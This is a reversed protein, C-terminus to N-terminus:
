WNAVTTIKRPVDPITNLFSRGADPYRRWAGRARCWRRSCRIEHGRRIPKFLPPLVRYPLAASNFLPNRGLALLIIDGAQRAAKSGESIQLNRKAKAALEGATVKGDVMDAADIVSRVAAVEDPSLIQPIQILM